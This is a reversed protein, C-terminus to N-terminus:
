LDCVCLTTQVHCSVFAVLVCETRMIGPIHSEQTSSSHSHIFQSPSHGWSNNMLQTMPGVWASEEFFSAILLCVDKQTLQTSPLSFWHQHLNLSLVSSYMYARWISYTNVIWKRFIGTQKWRLDGVKQQKNQKTKNVNYLLKPNM